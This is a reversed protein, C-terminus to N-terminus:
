LLGAKCERGRGGSIGATWFSIQGMSAFNQGGVRRRTAYGALAAKTIRGRHATVHERGLQRGRQFVSDVTYIAMVVYGFFTEIDRMADIPGSPPEFATAVVASGDRFGYLSATREGCGIM